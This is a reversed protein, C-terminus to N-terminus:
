TAGTGVIVLTVGVEPENNPPVGIVIVPVFKIAPEVTCTPASAANLTSTTLGVEMVATVGAPAVPPACFTNTIVAPPVAVLVAANENTSDSM